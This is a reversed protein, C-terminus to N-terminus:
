IKLLSGLKLQIKRMLHVLFLEASIKVKWSHLAKHLSNVFIRLATKQMRTSIISLLPDQMIDDAIFDIMEPLSMTWTEDYNNQAGYYLYLLKATNEDFQESFGSLAQAFEAATYEAGAMSMISQFTYLQQTEEQGFMSAYDPNSLVDNILFDIFEKLSM